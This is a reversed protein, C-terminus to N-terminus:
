LIVGHFVKLYRLFTGRLRRHVSKRAPHLINKRGCISLVKARLNGAWARAQGESDGFIVM